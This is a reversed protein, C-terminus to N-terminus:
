DEEEVDTGLIIKALKVSRSALAEADGEYPKPNALITKFIELAVYEEKSLEM